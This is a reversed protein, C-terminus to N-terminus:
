LNYFAKICTFAGDKPLLYEVIVNFYTEKCNHCNDIEHIIQIYM